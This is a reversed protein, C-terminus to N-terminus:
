ANEEVEEAAAEENCVQEVPILDATCPGHPPHLNGVQREDPEGKQVSAGTQVSTELPTISCRPDESQDDAQREDGEEEEEARQVEPIDESQRLSRAELSDKIYQLLSVERRREPM